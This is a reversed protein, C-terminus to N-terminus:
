HFVIYNSYLIIISNLTMSVDFYSFPSVELLLDSFIWNRMAWRFCDDVRWHVFDSERKRWGDKIGLLISIGSLILPVFDVLRFGSKILSKNYSRGGFSYCWFRVMREYFILLVSINKRNCRTDSTRWCKILVLFVYAWEYQGLARHIRSHYNRAVIWDFIM